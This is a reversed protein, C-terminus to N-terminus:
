TVEAITAALIRGRTFVNDVNRGFRGREASNRPTLLSHLRPGDTVEYRKIAEWTMPVDGSM